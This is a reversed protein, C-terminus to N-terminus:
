WKIKFGVNCNNAIVNLLCTAEVGYVNNIPVEASISIGGVPSAEIGGTKISVPFDAVAKPVRERVYIGGMGGIAFYRLFSFQAGVMYGGGLNGFSDKFAWASHTLVDSVYKIHLGPHLTNRRSGLYLNSFEHAVVDNVKPHFTISLPSVTVSKSQPLASDLPFTILLILLLKKM